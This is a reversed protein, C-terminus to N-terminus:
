KNDTHGFGDTRQRDCEDNDPIGYVAFIGQCFGKGQEIEFNEKNANVANDNNVIKVMIHGENKANYYDSDIIGHTNALRIGYKFGSDSRPNINM